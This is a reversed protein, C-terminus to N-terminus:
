AREAIRVNCTGSISLIYITQEEGAEYSEKANKYQIFGKTSIDTASPTENDGCLYVYFKADGQMTVVKRDSLASGGDQVEVPTISDISKLFQKSPGDLAEIM